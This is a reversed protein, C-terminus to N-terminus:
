CRRDKEVTGRATIGGINKKKVTKTLNKTRGKPHCVHARRNGRVHIRFQRKKGEPEKGNLVSEQLNSSGRGKERHRRRELGESLFSDGERLYTKNGHLSGM